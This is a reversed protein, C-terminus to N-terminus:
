DVDLIDYDYADGIIFAGDANVFKFRGRVEGNENMEPLFEEMVDATSKLMKVRKEFEVCLNKYDSYHYLDDLKTSDVTTHIQLTYIRM